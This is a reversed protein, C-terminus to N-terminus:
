DGKKRRSEAPPQPELDMVCDMWGEQFQRCRRIRGNARGSPLGAAAVASATAASVEPLELIVKQGKQLFATTIFSITGPKADRTHARARNISEDQRYWVTADVLYAYRRMARREQWSHANRRMSQILAQVELPWDAPVDAINAGGSQSHAGVTQGASLM